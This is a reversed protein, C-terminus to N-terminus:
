IQDEGRTAGFCLARISRVADEGPCTITALSVVTDASPILHTQLEVEPKDAHRHKLIISGDNQPYGEDM